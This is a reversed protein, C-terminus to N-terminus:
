QLNYVAKPRTHALQEVSMVRPFRWLGSGTNVWWEGTHDQFTIQNWGWGFSKFDRPLQPLVATFRQGDFRNILPEGDGTITCLEGRQNEFISTIRPKGLGDAKGFTTFGSWTIKMAGTPSALWLNGNRDETQPALWSSSLDRAATNIRFRGDSFESLG